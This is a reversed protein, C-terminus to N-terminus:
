KRRRGYPARQNPHPHSLYRDNVQSFLAHRPLGQRRRSRILIEASASRAGALNNGHRSQQVAATDGQGPAGIADRLGFRQGPHADGLIVVSSAPIGMPTTNPPAIRIASPCDSVVTRTKYPVTCATISARVAPRAPAGGKPTSCQRATTFPLTTGRAAQDLVTSGDPALTV